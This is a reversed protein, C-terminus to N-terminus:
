IQLSATAYMLVYTRLLTVSLVHRPHRPNSVEYLADILANERHSKLALYLNITTGAPPHDLIEWNEPVANWAHKVKMDDWLPSHPTALICLSGASLVSLISLWNCHM